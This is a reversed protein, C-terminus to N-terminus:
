DARGVKELLGCGDGQDEHAQRGTIGLAEEDALGEGLNQTCLQM